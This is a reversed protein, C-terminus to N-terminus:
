HFSAQQLSCVTLDIASLSGSTSNLTGPTNLLHLNSDNTLFRDIINGRANIRFSTNSLVGWTPSHANFDGCIIYPFSHFLSSINPSNTNHSLPLPLCRVYPLLFPTFTLFTSKSPLTSFFPHNSPRIEDPFLFKFSCHSQPHVISLKICYALGSKRLINQMLM